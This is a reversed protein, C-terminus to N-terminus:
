THAAQRAREGSALGGPAFTGVGLAADTAAISTEQDALDLMARICDVNEPVVISEQHVAQVWTLQGDDVHVSAEWVALEWLDNRPRLADRALEHLKATSDLGVGDPVLLVRSEFRWLDLVDERGWGDPLQCSVTHLHMHTTPVKVAVSRLGVGPAVTDLDPGHHSPVHMEPVIADIPGKTDEAPDAARRVLVCSARAVGGTAQHLLGLSRALGTTNCSVVRVHQKGRAGDFNLRANFSTGALAHDEGGQFIAPVGHAEYLPKLKAGVGGPTCDVVLDADALADGLLGEVALGKRTMAALHEEGTAYLPYRRSLATTALHDPATHVVGHLTLDNQAAIADAVRKGVTGFGNVLISPM